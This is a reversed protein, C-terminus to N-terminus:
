IGGAFRRLFDSVEWIEAGAKLRFIGAIGTAPEWNFLSFIKRIKYGAVPM